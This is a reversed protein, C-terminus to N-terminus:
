AGVFLEPVQGRIEGLERSIGIARLGTNWVVAPHKDKAVVHQGPKLGGARGAVLMVMNDTSHNADGGGDAARGAKGGEMAFVVVSNDLATATGEAISKIKAVLRAYKSVFWRNAKDLEANNGGHQVQAHLGGLHKWLDHLMGAEVLRDAGAILISHTLQCSVALGILDILLDARKDQDPASGINPPDTGPIEIAKCGGGAAPQAALLRQELSRVQDLHLDLSQRDRAGLRGSLATIQDRAFSLSSVRLRRNLDGATDPQGPTLNTVLARYGQTPSTQAQVIGFGGGSRKQVSLGIGRTPDIQYTLSPFRTQSGITEAVIQDVSQGMPTYQTTFGHRTGTLVVRAAYSHYDSKYGGPADTPAAFLGSVASVDQQLGFDALPQLCTKLDYGFGTRTPTFAENPNSSSPRLSTPCFFVVLRRALPGGDAYATGNGDLMSELLPLGIVTSAAGRLLERRGIKTTRHAM